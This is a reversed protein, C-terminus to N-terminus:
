IWKSKTIELFNQNDRGLLTRQNNQNSDIATYDNNGIQTREISDEFTM